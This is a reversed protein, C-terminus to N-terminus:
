DSLTWIRNEELLVVRQEILDRGRCDRTLLDYTGPKVYFLRVSYPSLLEYAGMRNDGWSEAASRAIYIYCIDSESQNDVQIEVVDEGGVTITTDEQLGWATELTAGSCTELWLDQPGFSLEFSQAEGARLATNGDLWNKGWTEDDSPAIYVGCVDRPTQNEVAVAFPETYSVPEHETLEGALATMFREETLDIDYAEVVVEADCNELAIDYQGPRVFLVRVDGEPLTEASGLYDKGWSDAAPPAIYVYCIEGADRNELTFPITDPAGVTIEADRLDWSTALTYGECNAVLLDHSEGEFRFGQSAGPAIQTGESLWNEGWFEDIAPALYVYCIPMPSANTITVEFRQPEDGFLDTPDQVV